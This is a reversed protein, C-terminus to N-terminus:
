DSEYEKIIKYFSNKENWTVETGNKEVNISEMTKKIMFYFGTM